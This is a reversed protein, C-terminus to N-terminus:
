NPKHKRRVPPETGSAQCIAAYADFASSGGEILKDIRRREAPTITRAFREGKPTTFAVVLCTGDQPLHLAYNSSQPM